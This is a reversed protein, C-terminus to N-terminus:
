ILKKLNVISGVTHSINITIQLLKCKFITFAMAHLPFCSDLVANSLMCKIVHVNTEEYM